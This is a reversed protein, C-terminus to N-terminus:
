GLKRGKRTKVRKIPGKGVQGSRKMGAMAPTGDEYVYEYVYEYQPKGAAAPAGQPQDVYVYQSAPQAVPAVPVVPVVPAVPAVEQEIRNIVPNVAVNPLGQGRNVNMGTNFPNFGTNSSAFNMPPMPQQVPNMQFPSQMGFGTSMGFGGQNGWVNVDTSFPDFGDNSTDSDSIDDFPNFSIDGGLTFENLAKDLQDRSLQSVRNIDKSKDTKLREFVKKQEKMNSLKKGNVMIEKKFLQSNDKLSKVLEDKNIYQQAGDTADVFNINSKDVRMSDDINKKSSQVKQGGNVLQVNLINKGPNPLSGPAPNNLQNTPMQQFNGSRTEVVPLNQQSRMNKPRNPSNAPIFDVVPQEVEHNQGPPEIEISLPAGGNTEINAGREQAPEVEVIPAEVIEETGAKYDDQAYLDDYYEEGGATGESVGVTEGGDVYDDYEGYSDLPVQNDTLSALDEYIQALALHCLFLTIFPIIHHRRDM